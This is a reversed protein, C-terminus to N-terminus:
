KQKERKGFDEVCSPCAHCWETGVKFSRWGATKADAWAESFESHETDHTEPCEDCRLVFFGGSRETSM